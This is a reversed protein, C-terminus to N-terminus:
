RHVGGKKKKRASFGFTGLQRGLAYYAGHAYALLNAREMHLKGTQDFLADDASVSVIDALFMDHSGLPIVERVRCELAIPCDALTPVAVAHSDTLAFGCRAIKDLKKGTYIGCFDVKKTMDATPLNIVFAGTERILGWSYRSPRVSVYTTPPDSCLIGCWAATMVNPHEADGCTILAPPVPALLTGARLDIRAM